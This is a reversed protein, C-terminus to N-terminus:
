EMLGNAKTARVTISIYHPYPDLSETLFAKCVNMAKMAKM